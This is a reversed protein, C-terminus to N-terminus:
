AVGRTDASKAKKPTVRKKRQKNAIPKREENTRRNKYAPIGANRAITSVSNPALEFELAVVLHKQGAELMEVIRENRRTLSRRKLVADAHAEMYKRLTRMMGDDVEYTSFKNNCAECVRSRRSATGKFAERTEVVSTPRGCKPCKM